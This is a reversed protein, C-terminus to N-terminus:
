PTPSWKGEREYRARMEAWSESTDRVTTGSNWNRLKRAKKREPMGNVARAWWTRWFGRWDEHTAVTLRDRNYRAFKSAEVLVVTEQGLVDAAAETAWEPPLKWEAPLGMKRVPVKTTPRARARASSSVTVKPPEVSPDPAVRVGKSAQKVGKLTDGHCGEAPALTDPQCGKAADKLKPAAALRELNFRYRTTSGPGRGGEREVELIGLGMVKSGPKHPLLERICRHVTSESLETQQAITGISPFISGGEDNAYDALKLAVAKRNASGLRTAYVQSMVAISM